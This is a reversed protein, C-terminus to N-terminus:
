LVVIRDAEHSMVANDFQSGRVINEPVASLDVSHEEASHRCVSMSVGKLTSLNTFEVNRLLHTGGDMAFIVVDHGKSSAARSMGVIHELHRDSNVLIGLKVKHGKHLYRHM